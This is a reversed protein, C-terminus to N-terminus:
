AAHGTAKLRAFHGHASVLFRRALRLTSGCQEPTGCLLPRFLFRRALRVADPNAHQAHAAERLPVIVVGADKRFRSVADTPSPTRLWLRIAAGQVRKKPLVGYWSYGTMASDSGIRKTKGGEWDRRRFDRSNLRIRRRAGAKGAPPTSADRGTFNAWSSAPRGPWASNRQPPGYRPVRKWRTM